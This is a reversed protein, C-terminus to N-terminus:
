PAIKARLTTQIQQLRAREAETSALALGQDVLALAEQFFKHQRHLEIAQWRLASNYPFVKVGEVLVALNDATPPTASQAWAEGIATYTESLSPERARAQFLPTLISALAAPPFLVGHALDTRAATLRLHALALLARTGAQKATAAAELHERATALDGTDYEFEGLVGLFAPDSLGSKYAGFLTRRAAAEFKRSVDPFSERLANMQMREFNGRLRAIETLTAPRLIFKDLQPLTASLAFPSYRATNRRTALLCAALKTTARAYDMKFCAAFDQETIPRQAALAALRWYGVSRQQRISEDDAIAWRALLGAQSCWHLRAARDATTPPGRFFDALPILAAAAAEAQPEPGEWPLYPLLLMGSLQSTDGYAQIGLDGPFLGQDGFMGEQMWQPVSPTRDALLCRALQAAATEYSDVTKLNASLVLSDGDSRAIVDPIFWGNIQGPGFRYGSDAYKTKRTPPIAKTDGGWLVIEVSRTRPTRFQQAPILSGKIQASLFQETVRISCLTLVEFGEIRGYLWPLDQQVTIPPLPLAKARAADELTDSEQARGPATLVAALAFAVLWRRCTFPHAFAPVAPRHQNLPALPHM